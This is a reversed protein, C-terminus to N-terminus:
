PRSDIDDPVDVLLPHGASVVEADGSTAVSLSTPRRITQHTADRVTGASQRPNLATPALTGQNRPSNGGSRVRAASRSAPVGDCGRAEALAPKPTM